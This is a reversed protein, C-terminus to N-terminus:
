LFIRLIATSSEEFFGVDLSLFDSDPGLETLGFDLDVRGLM